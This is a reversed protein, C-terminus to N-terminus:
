ILKIARLIIEPDKACIEKLLEQAPRNEKAVLTPNTTVGDIVGLSAAEKIEIINASDIFIKL